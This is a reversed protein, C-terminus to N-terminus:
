GAGRGRRRLLAVRLREGDVGLREEAAARLRPGLAELAGFLLHAPTLPGGAAARAALVCAQRACAGDHVVMEGGGDAYGATVTAPTAGPAGARALADQVARDGVVLVGVILDVPALEARLGAAAHRRAAALAARTAPHSGVLVELADLESDPAASRGPRMEATKAKARAIRASRSPSAEASPPDGAEDGAERAMALGATRATDWDVGLGALLKCAAGEPDRLLSLLLHGPSIRSDDLERAVAVTGELARKAEATFPIHGSPSTAGRGAMEEVAHRVATASALAPVVAPGTREAHDLLGLLLHEPGIHDHNLKRAEEQALVVVRRASDTFREFM